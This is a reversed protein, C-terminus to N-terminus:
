LGRAQFLSSTIRIGTLEEVPLKNIKNRTLSPYPSHFTYEMVEFDTTAAM